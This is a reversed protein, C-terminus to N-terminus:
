AANWSDGWSGYTEQLFQPRIVQQPSGQAIVRKNLLLLQDFNELSEGLDHHIVLVTKGAAALERFVEFLVQETPQDVGVFPEDFFYLDAEQALSRALFVRQQQGGSLEGIGRQAFDQMGVRALSQQAIQHSTSSLRRFWGTQQVRGMTVVDWATAPYTWDIQSRQPVYAVRHRQQWLPRDRYLVSGSQASILGLMAKILTSKGAGNPGLIGHLSGSGFSLNIDTLALVSRYGVTLDRIQIGTTILASPKLM